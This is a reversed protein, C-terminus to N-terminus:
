PSVSPEHFEIWRTSGYTMVGRPGGRLWNCRQIRNGDHVQIMYCVYATIMKQRQILFIPRLSLPTYPAPTGPPREDNSQCISAARARSAFVDMSLVIPDNLESKIHNWIKAVYAINDGDWFVRLRTSTGGTAVASASRSNVMPQADAHTATVSRASRLYSTSYLQHTVLPFREQVRRIMALQRPRCAHCEEM